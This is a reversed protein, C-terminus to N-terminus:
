LVITELHHNSITDYNQFNLNVSEVGFIIASHCKTFMNEMWWWIWAGWTIFLSNTVGEPCITSVFYHYMIASKNSVWTGQVPNRCFNRDDLHCLLPPSSRCEDSHGCVQGRTDIVKSHPFTVYLGIPRCHSYFKSVIEQIGTNLNINPSMLIVLKQSKKESNGKDM